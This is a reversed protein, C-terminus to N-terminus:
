TEPVERLIVERAAAIAVEIQSDDPEHTTFKQLAIGPKSIAAVLWFDNRGAWKIIEYSIGAIFPVLIIRSVFRLWIVDTRLFFFVVMSIVMVILLFSTGCRKHLRSYKKVNDCNLEGGQEFCNITKHEAGHYEFVRRIDKMRSILVVYALFILIRVVGEIVGLFSASVQFFGNLLGSLWVPLLMFLGIFLGLALVVTLYVMYEPIKDDETEMGSIEASQMLTKVGLVMSDVFAVVGRLIPLKLFKYKETVMSLKKEVIEITSDPKRVAMFCSKKGRMMVGEIVAQGGIDNQEKNKAM